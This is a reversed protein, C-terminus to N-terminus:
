IESLLLRVQSNATRMLPGRTISLCSIGVAARRVPRDESIAGLLKGLPIEVLDYEIGIQQAVQDWLYVALGSLQGEEVIVFPPCPAAAVLVKEQAPQGSQAMSWVPALLLVLALLLRRLGRAGPKGCAKVPLLRPMERVTM